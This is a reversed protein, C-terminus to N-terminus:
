NSADSRLFGLCLCARYRIENNTLLPRSPALAERSGALNPRARRLGLSRPTCVDDLGTALSRGSSGM